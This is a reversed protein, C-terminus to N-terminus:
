LRENIRKKPLGRTNQRRGFEDIQKRPKGAKTLAKIVIAVIDLVSQKNKRAM